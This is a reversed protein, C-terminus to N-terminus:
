LVLWLDVQYQSGSVKFLPKTDDLTVYSPPVNLMGTRQYFVVFHGAISRARM